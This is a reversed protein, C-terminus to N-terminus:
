NELMKVAYDVTPYYSSVTTNDRVINSYSTVNNNGIKVIDFVADVSTGYKIDNRHNERCAVTTLVKYQPSDTKGPAGVISTTGSSVQIATPEENISPTALGMIPFAMITIAIVWVLVRLFNTKM